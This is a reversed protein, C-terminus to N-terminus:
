FERRVPELDFFALLDAEHQLVFARKRVLEPEGRDLVIVLVGRHHALHRVHLVGLRIGDADIRVLRALHQPAKRLGARELEGAQDGAVALGAHVAGDGDFLPSALPRAAAPGPGYFARVRRGAGPECSCSRRMRGLRRCTSSNRGTDSSRPTTLYASPDHKTFNPSVWTSTVALRSSRRGGQSLPWPRPQTVASYPMNGRAVESRVRRSAEAPFCPPRVTSIWRRIPRESRAVM